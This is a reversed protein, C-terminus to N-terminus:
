TKGWEIARAQQEAVRLRYRGSAMDFALDQDARLSIDAWGAPGRVEIIVAYYDGAQAILRVRRDSIEARELERMGDEMKQSASSLMGRPRRRVDTRSLQIVPRATTSVTAHRAAGGAGTRRDSRRLCGKEALREMTTMVTTHALECDLQTRADRVSLPKSSSWALVPVGVSIGGANAKVAQRIM